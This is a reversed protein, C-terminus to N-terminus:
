VESVHERAAPRVLRSLKQASYTVSYYALANDVKNQLIRHVPIFCDGKFDLM